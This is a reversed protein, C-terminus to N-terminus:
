GRLLGLVSGSGELFAALRLALVLAPRGDDRHIRNDEARPDTVVPESAFRWSAVWKLKATWQDALMHAEAEHM